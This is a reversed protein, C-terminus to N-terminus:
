TSTETVSERTWEEILAPIIVRDLWIKLAPNLKQISGPLHGREGQRNPTVDDLYQDPVWPRIVSGAGSMDAAESTYKPM